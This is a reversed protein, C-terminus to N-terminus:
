VFSEGRGDADRTLSVYINQVFYVFEPIAYEACAAPSTDHYTGLCLAQQAAIGRPDTRLANDLRASSEATLEGNVTCLCMSDFAVFVDGQDPYEAQVPVNDCGTASGAPVDPVAPPTPEAPATTGPPCATGAPVCQPNDGSCQTM